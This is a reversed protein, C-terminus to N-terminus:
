SRSVPYRPAPRADRSFGGAGRPPRDPDYPEKPEARMFARRRRKTGRRPGNLWRQAPREVLHYLAISSALVLALYLAIQGPPMGHTDHVFALKFVFFLLFHSLYTAYSVDGLYHLWRADLPNGRVGSTLALVLLGAAFAAPIALTEPLGLRWAAIGSACPM